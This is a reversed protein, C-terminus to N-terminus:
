ASASCCPPIIALGVSIRWDGSGALFYAVLESILIGITISFQNLSVLAGRRAPPAIEAIYLPVSFSASGVGVGVIVRGVILWWLEQATIAVVLGVVFTIATAVILKKRGIRDAIRGAVLAGVAAGALLCSVVLGKMFPSSFDFRTAINPLVGSIVGTDYGFLVGGIATIASARTVVRSASHAHRSARPPLAAPRSDPTTATM